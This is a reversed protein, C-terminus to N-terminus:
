RTAALWLQFVGFCALAIVSAGTLTHTIRPGLNKTAAFLAIIGAGCLVMTGYFGVLLFIGNAPAERWGKLLLPGMVLSWGLYPNPNLFNVLSARWVTQGSNSYEARTQAGFRRWTKWASYALSFLFAGGAFQIVRMMWAPVQSLVVLTLFIIPGDSILPALSAPL